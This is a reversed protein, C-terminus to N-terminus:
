GRHLRSAFAPGLQTATDHLRKDNTWLEARTILRVGALLHVNVDLIGRWFLTQRGIFHPAEADAAASAAFALLLETAVPYAHDLQAIPL